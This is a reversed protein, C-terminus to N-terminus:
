LLRKHLSDYAPPLDPDISDIGHSVRNPREIGGISLSAAVTATFLYDRRPLVQLRHLYGRSAQSAQARVFASVPRYVATTMLLLGCGLAHGQIPWRM